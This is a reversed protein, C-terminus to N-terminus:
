AWNNHEQFEPETFVKAVNFDEPYYRIDYYPPSYELLCCCGDYAMLIHEVLTIHYAELVQKLQLTSSIDETSPHIDMISTNPHNHTIILKTAHHKHAIELILSPAATTQQPNFLTTDDTALYQYKDNLCLIITKEYNLALFYPRLHEYYQPLTLLQEKPKTKMQGRTSLIGLNSIAIAQAQSIQFTQMLYHVPLHVLNFLSGTELLMRKCLARIDTHRFNYQMYLSFLIEEDIDSYYTCNKCHNLLQELLENYITLRM